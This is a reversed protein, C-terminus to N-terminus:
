NNHCEFRLLVIFLLKCVMQIIYSCMGNRDECVYHFASGLSTDDWLGARDHSQAYIIVGHGTAGNPEGDAFLYVSSTVQSTQWIVDRPTNATKGDTWTFGSNIIIIKLEKTKLTDYVHSYQFLLFSSGNM